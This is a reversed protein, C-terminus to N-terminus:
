APLQADCTLCLHAIPAGVDWGLQRDLADQSYIPTTELHRCQGKVYEPGPSGFQTIEIWEWRLRLESM